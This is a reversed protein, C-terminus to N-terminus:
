GFNRYSILLLPPTEPTADHWNSARPGSVGRRPSLVAPVVMPHHSTPWGTGEIVVRVERRFHEAPAPGRLGPSWCRRRAQRHRCRRRGPPGAFIAPPFDLTPRLNQGFRRAGDGGPDSAVEEWHHPRNDRRSLHSAPVKLRLWVQDM